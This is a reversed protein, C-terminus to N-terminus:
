AKLVKEYFHQYQRAMGSAGYERRWYDAEIFREQEAKFTEGKSQEIAGELDNWYTKGMFLTHAPIESLVLIKGAGFAEIPSLPMGEFESLSIFVQSANLWELPTRSPGAFVVEKDIQLDLAQKRLKALEGESSEQGVLVLVSQTRLFPPLKQWLDIAHTQGKQAHIRALYLVWTQTAHQDLKVREYPDVISDILKVRIDRREEESSVPARPFLVGNRVVQVKSKPLGLKLYTEKVEESVTILQDAFRTFVQEYLGHRKKKALHVFSHQTHVIKLAGLTFFKAAVAYLLPGLDHTHLVPIKEQHCLRVVKIVTKWSFGKGKRVQHVPVGLSQFDKALSVSGKREDYSLVFPVVDQSSTFSECLSYIVRELGGMELYQTMLLVRVGAEERVHHLLRRRTTLLLYLVAFIPGCVLFWRLGHGMFRGAVLSLVSLFTAMGANYALDGLPIFESVKWQTTRRIHVWGGVRLAAQTLLLGILAGVGLEKITLYPITLVAVVLGFLLNKFIWPSDGKARAWSDYPFSLMLFTLSYLRLFISTWAFKETFLMVVIPDAFVLLGATAPILIWSLEAVAEKFLGPTEHKLNPILIRNVAQEFSNIPPISLCGLTYGAFYAADSIKSLFLQDAYHTCVAVISAFSIPLVYALIKKNESMERLMGFDIKQFGQKRGLIVGIVTKVAVACVWAIIVAQYNKFIIACSVVCASRLSDLGASFLGGKWTKGTAIMADEYFAMTMTLFTGGAFWLGVDQNWAVIAMVVSFFLAWILILNWSRRFDVLYNEKTAWFYLGNNIGGSLSLWSMMGLYLFFIKYQGMQEPSLVRVLVLPLALNVLASFSSLITLPWHSNLKNKM